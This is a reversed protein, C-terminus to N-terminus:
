NKTLLEFLIGIGLFVIGLSFMLKGYIKFRKHKRSESYDLFKITHGRTTKETEYKPRHNIMNFGLVGFMAGLFIVLLEM